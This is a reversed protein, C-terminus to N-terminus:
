TFFNILDEDQYHELTSIRHGMTSIREKTLTIISLLVKNINEDDSLRYELEGYNNYGLETIENIILDYTIWREDNKDNHFVKSPNIEFGKADEYCLLKYTVEKVNKRKM